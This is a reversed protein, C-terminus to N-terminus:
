PGDDRVVAEDRITPGPGFLIQGVDTESRGSVLVHRCQDLGEAGLATPGLHRLRPNRLQLPRPWEGTTVTLLAHGARKAAPLAIARRADTTEVAVHRAAGR